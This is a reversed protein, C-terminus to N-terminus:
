TIMERGKGKAWIYICIFLYIYIVYYYIFLGLTIPSSFADGTNISRVFPVFSPPDICSKLLPFWWSNVEM